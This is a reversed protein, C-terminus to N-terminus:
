AAAAGRGDCDFLQQIGRFVPAMDFRTRVLDHLEGALRAAAARDALLEISAAAFRVADDEILCHRGPEVPLGEAGITTSVVPRGFAGAELIKIRTGGGIRIPAIVGAAREYFPRVDPVDAHVAVGDRGDLARVSAVPGRGVVLLRADPRLRRVRPWVNQVFWHLGDVNPEYCLTGCFLLTSPDLATGVPVYRALPLANPVVAVRASWRRQELYEKDHDSCVICLDASPLHRRHYRALAAVNLRTRARLYAGSAPHVDHDRAIKVPEIDDLDVVLRGDIPRRREFLYRAQFIYRALVVDFRTSALARDIARAFQPFHSFELEWSIGRAFRSLRDALSATSPRRDLSVPVSWVNAFHQRAADLHDLQAAHRFPHVLSLEYHDKLAEVFNWTRQRGGSTVPLVFEPSVLLLRKM